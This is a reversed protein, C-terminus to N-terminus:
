LVVSFGLTVLVTFLYGHLFTQWPHRGKPVGAAHIDSYSYTHRIYVVIDFSAHAQVNVGKPKWGESAAPPKPISKM